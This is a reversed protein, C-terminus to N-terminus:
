NRSFFRNNIEFINSNYNAFVQQLLKEYHCIQNAIKNSFFFGAYAIRLSM